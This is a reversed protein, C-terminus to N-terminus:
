WAVYLCELLIARAPEYRRSEVCAAAGTRKASGTTVFVIFPQITVGPELAKYVAQTHLQHVAGRGSRASVCRINIGNIMPRNHVCVFCIKCSRIVNCHEPVNPPLKHEFRRGLKHVVEREYDRLDGGTADSVHTRPPRRLL